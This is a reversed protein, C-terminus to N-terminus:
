HFIATIMMIFFCALLFWGIFWQIVLSTKDYILDDTKNLNNEYEDIADQVTTQKPIGAHCCSDFQKVETVKTIESVEDSTSNYVYLPMVRKYKAIRECDKCHSKHWLFGKCDRTFLCWHRYSFCRCCVRGESDHEPKKNNAM